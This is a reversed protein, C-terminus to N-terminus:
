CPFSSQSNINGVWTIEKLGQELLVNSKDLFAFATSQQMAASDDDQPVDFFRSIDAHL